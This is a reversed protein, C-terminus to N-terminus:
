AEVDAAQADRRKTTLLYGVMAAAFLGVLGGVANQMTNPEVLPEPVPASPTVAPPPPTACFGEGSRAVFAGFQMAGYDNLAFRVRESGNGDSVITLGDHADDFMGPAEAYYRANIPDVATGLAPRSVAVPFTCQDFAAVLKQYEGPSGDDATRTTSAAGPEAVRQHYVLFATHTTPSLALGTVTAGELAADGALRHLDGGIGRVQTWHDGWWGFRVDIRPDLPEALRSATLVTYGSPAMAMRLRGEPMPTSGRVTFGEDPTFAVVDVADDDTRCAIFAADDQVAVDSADHCGQTRNAAVRGHELPAESQAEFGAPDGDKAEAPLRLVTADLWSVHGTAAVTTEHNERWLTVVSLNEPDDETPGVIAIELDSLTGDAQRPGHGTGFAYAMTAGKDAGAPITYHGVHDEAGDAVGRWLMAVHLRGADDYALAHTEGVTGEPVTDAPIPNDAWTLGGDDSTFVTHTEGRRAHDSGNDAPAGHLSVFAVRDPDAPDQALRPAGFGYGRDYIRIPCGYVIVEGGTDVVRPTDEDPEPCTLRLRADDDAAAPQGRSVPDEAPAVADDVVEDTVPDFSVPDTVAGHGMATAPLLTGLFLVSLLLAVLPRTRVAIPAATSM